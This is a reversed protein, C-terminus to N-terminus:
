IHILSLGGGVSYTLVDSTNTSIDSSPKIDSCDTHACQSFLYGYAGTIAGNGFKGGGVDTLTLPNNTVYAYRNYSQLNTANQIFPDAIALVRLPYCWTRAM